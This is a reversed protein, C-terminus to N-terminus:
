NTTAAEEKTPAQLLASEPNGWCAPAGDTRVGCSYHTGHNPRGGVSVSRFKGEPPIAAARGGDIYTEQGGWCAVTGDARVGCAHDAGTSLSLFRGDPPAARGHSNDGWCELTGDLYVGCMYHEGWSGTGVSQFAGEIKWWRRERDGIECEIHGETHVGCYSGSIARFTGSLPTRPDGADMHDVCAQFDDPANGWCAGGDDVNGWCVVTDDMGIACAHGDAASVSKYEGEPPLLDGRGYSYNGWCALSDDTRIGCGFQEHSGGLSISRFKGTPSGIIGWCAVTRDHLLWCVSDGDSTAFAEVVTPIPDLIENQDSNWCVLSDNLRYGCSYDIGNHSYAQWDILRGSQAMAEMEFEPEGPCTVFGEYDALCFLGSDAGPAEDGIHFGWIWCVIAGDTRLGCAHPTGVSIDTFEGEPPNVRDFPWGWCLISGDSAIGCSAAGGDPLHQFTTAPLEAEQAPAMEPACFFACDGGSGVAIQGWCVLEGNTRLGCSQLGDVSVSLFGGPPPNAPNEPSQPALKFDNLDTWCTVTGDTKVGCTHFLGASVSKFAGVPPDALDAFENGLEAYLYNSGWGWCALTSDTRVGCTHLIGASVSTFVGAPPDILGAYEGSEVNKYYGWCVVAGNTKIGCAHAYGASISKFRVDPAPVTDESTGWCVASGDAKLACTYEFGAAVATYNSEVGPVPATATPQPIGTSPPTTSTPQHPEDPPTATVEPQATPAITPRPAAPIEPTETPQPTDAPLESAAVPSHTSDPALVADSQGGQCGALVTLILFLRFAPLSHLAIRQPM